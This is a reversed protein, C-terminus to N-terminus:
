RFFSNVGPCVALGIHTSQAPQLVSLRVRAARRVVAPFHALLGVAPVPLPPRFHPTHRPEPFQPHAGAAGRARIVLKAVFAHVAPGVGVLAAHVFASQASELAQLLAPGLVLFLQLRRFLQVFLDVLLEVLIFISSNSFLSVRSTYNM